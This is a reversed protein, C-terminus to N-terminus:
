RCNQLECYVSFTTTLQQFISSELVALPDDIWRGKKNGPETSYRGSSRHWLGMADGDNCCAVIGKRNLAMTSFFDCSEQSRM